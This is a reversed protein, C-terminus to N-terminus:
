NLSSRPLRYWHDAQGHTMGGQLVQDVKAMADAQTVNLLGMSMPAGQVIGCEMDIM